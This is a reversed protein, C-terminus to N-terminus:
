FRVPKGTALAERQGSRRRQAMAQEIQREAAVFADRLAVYPDEHAHDHPGQGNVIIERGPVRMQIRAQYLVGKHHHRHPADIVVHCSTIRDCIHELYEVHDRVRAELAPSPDM